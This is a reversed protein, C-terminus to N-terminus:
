KITLTPLIGVLVSLEEDTFKDDGKKKRTFQVESIEIGLENMKSVIWKQSRGDRSRDIREELTLESKQTM